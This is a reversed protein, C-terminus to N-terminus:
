DRGGLESHNPRWYCKESFVAPDLLELSYSIWCIDGGWPRYNGNDLVELRAFWVGHPSPVRALRDWRSRRLELTILENTETVRATRVWSDCRLAWTRSGCDPEGDDARLELRVVQDHYRGDDVSGCGAALHAGGAMYAFMAVSRGDM